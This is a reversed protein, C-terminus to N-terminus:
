EAPEDPLTGIEADATVNVEGLKWTYEAVLLRHTTSTTQAPARSHGPSRSAAARSKSSYKTGTSTRLMVSKEGTRMDM